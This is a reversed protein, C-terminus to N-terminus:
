GRYRRAVGSRLAARAEGLAEEFRLADVRSDALAYGDAAAIITGQGLAARLRAVHHQLANRPAAPLEEGWMADILEDVPIGRGRRLALLALLAHRKSGSVAVAQGGM